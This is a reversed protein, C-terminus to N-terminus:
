SGRRQAIELATDAVREQREAAKVALDRERTLMGIEREHERRTILRGTYVAWGIVAWTGLVGLSQAIEIIRM